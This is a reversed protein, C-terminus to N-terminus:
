AVGARPDSSEPPTHSSVSVRRHHEGRPVPTGGYSKHPFPGGPDVPAERCQGVHHVCETTRPALRHGRKWVVPGSSHAWTLM